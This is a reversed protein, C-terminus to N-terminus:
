DNTEGLSIKEIRAEQWGMMMAACEDCLNIKLARFTFTHTASRDKHTHKFAPSESKSNVCLPTM